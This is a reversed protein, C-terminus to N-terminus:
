AEPGDCHLHVVSCKCIYYLCCRAYANGGRIYFMMAFSSYCYIYDNALCQSFFYINKKAIFVDRLNAYKPYILLFHIETEEHNNQVFHVVPTM